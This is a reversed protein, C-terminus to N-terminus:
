NPEVIISSFFRKFNTWCKLKAYPLNFLTSDKITTLVPLPPSTLPNATTITRLNEVLRGKPRKPRTTAIDTDGIYRTDQIDGEWTIKELGLMPGWIVHDSGPRENTKILVRVIQLRMIAEKILVRFLDMFRCDGSSFFHTGSLWWFETEKILVREYNAIEQHFAAPFFLIPPVIQM